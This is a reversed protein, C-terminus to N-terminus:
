HHMTSAYNFSLSPQLGNVGPPVEIPVAYNAVGQNVSLQGDFFGVPASTGSAVSGGAMGSVQPKIQLVGTFVFSLVLFTIVPPHTFFKKIM